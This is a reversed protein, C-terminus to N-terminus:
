EFRCNAKITKDCHIWKAYNNELLQIPKRLLDAIAFVQSDAKKIYEHLHVDRSRQTETGEKLFCAWYNTQQWGHLKM